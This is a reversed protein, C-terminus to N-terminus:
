LPPRSTSCAPSRRTPSSIIVESAPTQTTRVKTSAHRLRSPTDSIDAPATTTKRAYRTRTPRSSINRTRRNRGTQGSVSANAAAVGGVGVPAPAIGRRREHAHRRLEPLGLDAIPEEADIRPQDREDGVDVVLVDVVHLLLQGRGLARALTLRHERREERAVRV